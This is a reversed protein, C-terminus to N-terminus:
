VKAPRTVGLERLRNLTGAQRSHVDHWDLRVVTLGHSALRAGATQDRRKQAATEHNGRGDLEVVLGLEPWYADVLVGHLWVNVRPLTLHHAELLLLFAIELPSRTRALQPLRQALARRLLASGPRGRTCLALLAAVDLQRRYELNGLAFRVLNLDGDAALTLMLESIPAVPIGRHLVRAEPRRQHVVIGPRSQCYRPTAVTISRPPHRILERHHAGSAGDLCAGPGAYLIAEWTLAVLDTRVYGLAYVRPRTRTLTGDRIWWKIEDPTLGVLRLEAYSIRGGQGAALKRAQVKPNSPRM